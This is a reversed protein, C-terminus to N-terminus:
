EENGYFMYIRRLRTRQVSNRAWSKEEHPQPGFILLKELVKRILTGESKLRQYKVHQPTSIRLNSFGQFSKQFKFLLLVPLIFVVLKEVQLTNESICKTIFFLHHKDHNRMRMGGVGIKTNMKAKQYRTYLAVYSLLFFSKGVKRGGFLRLNQQWCATTTRARIYYLIPDIVFSSLVKIM